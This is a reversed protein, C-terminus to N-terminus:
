LLSQSTAPTFPCPLCLNPSYILVQNRLVALGYISSMIDVRGVGVVHRPVNHIGGHVASTM